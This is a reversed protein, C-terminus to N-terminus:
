RFIKNGPPLHGNNIYYNYIKMKEEVKIQMRNGFFEPIMQVGTTELYEKTYRNDSMTEGYKWVDGKKLEMTGSPCNYCTYTGDRLAVLAYQFGNFNALKIKEVIRAIEIDRKELAAKVWPFNRGDSGAGASTPLLVAGVTMVGSGLAAATVDLTIEWATLETVTGTLAVALAANSTGGESKYKGGSHYVIVVNGDADTEWTQHGSDGGSNSSVYNTQGSYEAWKQEAAAGVYTVSQASGGTGWIKGGGYGFDASLGSKFMWSLDGAFGFSHDHGAADAPFLTSGVNYDTFVTGNPDVMSEPMNGMASFPSFMDQGSTNALPDIQLFRGLQPDYQRANFDMWNLGLDKVYENGQYKNRNPLAGVAAGGAMAMPLGYPYYHTEEKLKGSTVRIRLQDFFVDGCSPCQVQTSSNSLYVALYGNVPIELPQSTGIETWTGNGTVQFASSFGNVIKMGEDFLVYNLYAKPKSPDTISNIASNIFTYNPTFLTNVLSTNHNEGPISGGGGGTLTTIIADLMDEPAVPDDKDKDYNEYFNNVNMEILDGSMVSMLMSTGIRRDIEAGNLRGSYLNNPDGGTPNPDRIENHYDFLMGELNASALEYTGLYQRISHEIVDIVSRVNKLHDTVFYEEHVPNASPDNFITRGENTLCYQLKDNEFIFNGIYDTTKSPTGVPNVKEQTKKGSADYTYIITAGNSFTVTEPKNFHNYTVQSIGKNLDQTLNGNPDYNYDTSTGNPNQFDGINYNATVGDHVYRLKNSNSNYVYDLNDMDVPVASGGVIGMGRQNMNEINGNKDYQLGSLTYDTFQKTWSLGVFERFDANRMRGANDYSYGYAFKRRNIGGSGRWIMGSIRGDFTPQDFGYDYSLVEGFTRSFGEKNGTEAYNGNISLLQGRINYSYDQVEGYNGLIKRKIRGLDDYKYMAMTSWAGDDIKHSTKLLLGTAAEYENRNLEVHTNLVDTSNYNAVIHKSILNRGAFDYQLGTLQTHIPNGQYLNKEVTYIVRQKDDYFVASTKWDGTKSALTGSVQKIRIKTGVLLGETRLSRTPVEAGLNTALESFQLETNYSNFITGSPDVTNYNDYYTYSMMTNGSVANETPPSAEGAETMLYYGLSNSGGPTGNDIFDQWYAVSNASSYHSTGTPRGSQDYFTIQWIGMQSDLPTRRMIRNRKRDYVFETFGDEGPFREANQRGKLDYKYQFCLNNLVDSSVVGSANEIIQVAKPPITVRLKGKSDYVYYTCQYSRTLTGSISYTSDQVMKLIVKGDKDKFLISSPATFANTGISSPNIQQEGFLESAAYWGSTFPNGSADIEWIRVQNSVNSVLMTTIARGQGVQSKGPQFIATGRQNNTSINQQHSYATYGESPFLNNYYDKQNQFESVQLGANNSSFPLYTYKDRQPRVDAIEIRHKNVGDVKSVNNHVVQYVKRSGDLYYASQKVQSSLSNVNVLSTDSIPIFPSFGRVINVHTTGNATYPSPSLGIESTAGSPSTSGNPVNQAISLLPAFLIAILIRLYKYLM